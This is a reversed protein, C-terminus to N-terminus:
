KRALVSEPSLTSGSHRTTEQDHPALWDVLEAIEPVRGVSKLVGDVMLGPVGYVQLAVIASFDSVREIRCDLGCEEVVQRLRREAEDCRKCQPGAILVHIM